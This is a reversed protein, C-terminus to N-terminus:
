QSSAMMAAMARIEEMGNILMPGAAAGAFLGAITLWISIRFPFRIAPDVHKWLYSLTGFRGAKRIKISPPKELDLLRLQKQQDYDLAIADDALHPSMKLIYVASRGDHEVRVLDGREARLKGAWPCALRVVGKAQDWSPHYYDTEHTCRAKLQEFTMVSFNGIITM